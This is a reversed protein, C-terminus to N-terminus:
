QSNKRTSHQSRQFGMRSAHPHLRTFFAILHHLVNEIQILDSLTRHFQRERNIARVQLLFKNVRCFKNIAAIRNVPQGVDIDGVFLAAFGTRPGHAVPADGEEKIYDAIDLTDEDLDRLPDNAALSGEPTQNNQM